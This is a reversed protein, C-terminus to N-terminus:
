CQEKEKLKKIQHKSLGLTNMCEKHTNYTVGNITIPKSNANNSDNRPGFSSRMKEKSEESHSKGYFGNLKKFHGFKEKREQESLSYINEKWKRVRKQLVEKSTSRGELSKRLNEKHEKSKKSGRLVYSMSRGIKENVVYGLNGGQGGLAINYCEELSILNSTIYQKETRNLDSYDSCFELIERSFNERGYKEIAEQLLLGSGLYSDNLDTTSHKGIYFKGNILNTTKYIFYYM